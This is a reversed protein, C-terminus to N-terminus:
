YRKRSSSKGGGGYGGRDNRDGSPRSPRDDNRKRRFGEERGGSGGGFSNGGIVARVELDRYPSKEFAAILDDKYKVDVEFYTMSKQIDIRGVEVSKRPMHENILNILMRPNMKSIAGHNISLKAFKSDRGGGDRMGKVGTARGADANIDVADKYYELFRNFEASVFRKVIEEKDYASLSAYIAEMYPGIQEENIEVAKMKDILNFLQIGCIEKGSPVRAYDVKKGIKQELQRIRGLEKTHIISVSQGLKGARGTRGSRHIYVEVDDPLNYNIVHSLENVDLGRAAVDTAVLMQLQGKRFRGMVYDRQAQSLDGHLADANYGDQGLKDAVEQTEAKTRCFIIAYINPNMDAIRKLAVYRDKASVMYYIHHITENSVNVKGASVEEADNMYKAAIHRIEKPMTASFLLVQKTEPTGALIADLEDKFGMSLMEDAEDLVLWQVNALDLKKRNVMDLTRGPTGIIIQPNDKLQKLQGTIPTGGYVALSRIGKLFKSYNEIDRSIQLCLERTPCLIVAQVSENNTDINNLIPLSFAATKGTGTQALAILDRKSGLLLSITKQQIPTPTTFGLAEVASLIEPRLGTDHFTTM